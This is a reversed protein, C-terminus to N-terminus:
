VEREKVSAAQRPNACGRGNGYRDKPPTNEEEKGGGEEEEEEDDDDDTTKKAAEEGVAVREEDDEGEGSLRQRKQKAGVAAGSARVSELRQILENKKGKTSQNLKKLQDRLEGVKCSKAGLVSM